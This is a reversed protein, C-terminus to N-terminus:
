LVEDMSRPEVGNEPHEPMPICYQVEGNDLKQAKGSSNELSGTSSDSEVVTEGDLRNKQMAKLLVGM